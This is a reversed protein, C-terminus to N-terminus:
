PIDENAGEGMKITEMAGPPQIGKGKFEKLKL